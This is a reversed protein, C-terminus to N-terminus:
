SDPRLSVIYAVLDGIDEDSLVGDWAPMSHASVETRGGYKITAFVYHKSLSRAGGRCKLPPPKVTQGRVHTGLVSNMSAPSQSEHCGQCLAAFLGEGRAQNGARDPHAGYTLVSDTFAEPPM